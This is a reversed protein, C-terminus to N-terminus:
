RFCIGLGATVNSYHAYTYDGHITVPGLKLRMGVNIRPKTPKGDNNEIELSVM